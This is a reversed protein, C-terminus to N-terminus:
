EPEGIGSTCPAGPEPTQAGQQFSTIFERIGDDDVSQFSQQAGWAGAVIPATLGPYPSVLLHTQGDALGELVEIDAAALDPRYTIWVAGHELSHVASEDLVPDRYVGCNQWASSHDGGIPPSHPYELDDDVHDRSAIEITSVSASEDPETSNDSGASCATALFAALAFTVPPMTKM